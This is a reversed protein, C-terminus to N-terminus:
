MVGCGGRGGDGWEVGEGEMVGWKARRRVRWWEREM